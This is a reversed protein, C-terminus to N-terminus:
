GDELGYVHEFYARLIEGVSWAQSICGRPTHPPDGDFIESITGLGAEFLHTYFPKLLEKISTTTEKQGAYARAYASIYPGLLWAWVTGQHYARDREYVNGYYRGIYDKDKPSLSRLGYPTLLHEQVIKIVARQRALSLM